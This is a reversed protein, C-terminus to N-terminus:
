KCLDLFGPGIFLIVDYKESLYEKMIERLSVLSDDVHVTSCGM